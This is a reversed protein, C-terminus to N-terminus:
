EDASGVDAGVLSGVAKGVGAGFVNIAGVAIGKMGGDACGEGTGM